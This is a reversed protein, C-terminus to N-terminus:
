MNKPNKEIKDNYVAMENYINKINRKINEIETKLSEVSKRNNTADAKLSKLIESLYDNDINKDECVDAFSIFDKAFYHLRKCGAISKKVFKVFNNRENDIEQLKSAVFSDGDVVKTLYY